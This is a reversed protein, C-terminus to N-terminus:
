DRAPVASGEVPENQVLSIKQWIKLNLNSTMQGLDSAVAVVEADKASQAYVAAVKSALSLMESCYDLYRTLQHPSMSRAPSHATTGGLHVASPDKTLQHMDIVHIISRLEDLYALAKQRKWRSELTVLFLLAGGIIVVVSVLSDIGQLVGFFEQNQRTYSMISAVYILGWGGLVIVSASIARLVRNPKDLLAGREKSERAIGILEQCVRSLGAGPFRDEIRQGLTVLTEVIKESDLTSYAM